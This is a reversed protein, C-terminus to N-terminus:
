TAHLNQSGQWMELFDHVKAMRHMKSEVVEKKMELDNETNTTDLEPDTGALIGNNARAFQRVILKERLTKGTTKSQRWSIVDQGLSFSAEVRVGHPIISVINRAVNSLDAYTWHTEEQQRWWYTIDPLWFTSSIEMPDSHYDNLNPNIQGWNKPAEPLSNLYLRAATLLRAAHDSSGPTMEAVNNPTLYEEDDSSSDYPDFSSQYSGLATASPVLNSSPVTELKNVTVCRHKACYENEVYKLIAVQYPTTYFKEDEPNMDMEKDWKRFSRFKTFPDLINTSIHLMSTTPTVESHYKSLKQRALKVPFFLDEKWQTKKKAFARMVCDMHNFMDNYVTIVHHLTVTHRKSMWLTWHWFSRLVEMGYKVITWEDQTTFLPWYESYKPNQLWERKFEWLPYTREVLELTSNWSTKVDMIPLVTIRVKPKSLWHVRKPSWTNAYHICCAIEAIHLDAEPSEFYWSIHVKEIINALGPTMASVMNIRANGDKWLRQSNGVDMSENEGFQQDREHAEWSKTCGKVGLSSMFAGSALQIVHAMCPIHNRLAPWEIGSAEHTSQLERTM